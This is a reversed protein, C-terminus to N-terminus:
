PGEHGTVPIAKGKSHALICFNYVTTNRINSSIHIGDHATNIEQLKSVTTLIDYNRSTDRCYHLHRLFSNASSTRLM